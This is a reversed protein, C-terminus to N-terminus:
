RRTTRLATATTVATVRNPHVSWGAMGVAAGTLAVVDATAAGVESDGVEDDDGVDVEAAKDCSVTSTSPRRPGVWIAMWGSPRKSTASIPSPSPVGVPVTVAILRSSGASRCTRTCPDSVGVPTVTAPPLSQIM